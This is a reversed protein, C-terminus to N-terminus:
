GNSVVTMRLAAFSRVNIGLANKPALALDKAVSLVVPSDLEM